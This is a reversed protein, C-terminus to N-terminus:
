GGAAAPPSVVRSTSGNKGDLVERVKQALALPTFPKGLFNTGQEQIGHRVITDNTYGSMYLVKLNPHSLVLLDTLQRGSMKPMVVDTVLLHIVNEYDHCVQVAESGNGTSLVKYGSTELVMHALERLGDEDEVLLITEAGRPMTVLGHNSGKKLLTPERIQPLYVRFTSGAGVTSEVELFGGSQKVIGFVTALGLGTGKGVEKTTFFPEFIRSKTAEDMGCGTDQVALVTYRGSPLEPHQRIQIESLDADHTRITLQGGRTMADRANVVLNMIVQEMQGPDVKVLGSSPQLVTTMEVDEGILRRLMKEFENLLFNLDLVVPALIQKRGFALLQRTLVAAREGAARIAGIYERGPDKAPLTSLFIDSYGLIITLLNNFDHAVGAALQGVAEMKQSQRYQEELQKRDTVDAFLDMTGVVLGRADIMPATWLNVDLTSGNKHLLRLERGRDTNAQVENLMRAQSTARQDEPVLPLPRGLLETAEWGFIREAAANWMSVRSHQDLTIIALPAAQILAQLNQNSQRLSAETRKRVIYQGLQSGIAMMMKLKEDDPKKIEHNFFELVGLIESDFVIPFGFAAHLGVGAAFRSRDYNLDRAFDAVWIAEGKAWIRGPLSVGPAYVSTRTIAEFDAVRISDDCWCDVCRVVREHQDVEWLAGFDWALSQCIADLVKSSATALTPSEALAQTVAYQAKLRQDTLRTVSRLRQKELAQAVAQGLRGLRDKIIYDTAGRQMVEVALEEGISGSVIIFPIDLQDEQVIELARLSDFEPMSFDALIIDPAPNLHERYESETEVRPGVPDYGARRLTHLVLEADSPNDELLLLRLPVTM